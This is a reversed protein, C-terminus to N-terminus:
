FEEEQNFVSDLEKLLDNELNLLFNSPKFAVVRQIGNIRALLNKKKAFINGFKGKNWASAEITFNGIADVLNDRWAQSVVNPFSPDLLWCSQFIFLRKRGNIAGPQMKLLVPCHNSHSRTLHTVRANPYLMCWSPNAFFRDIREQILAQVERRNTWTFHPGSFGIDMM